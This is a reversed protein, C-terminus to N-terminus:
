RISTRSAQALREERGRQEPAPPGGPGERGPPSDGSKRAQVTTRVINYLAEPLLPKSLYECVGIKIAHIYSELSDRCTVVILPVGPAKMRVAALFDRPDMDPMAYETVILDLLMGSGIICLASRGDVADVIRYGARRLQEGQLELHEADHDILLITKM